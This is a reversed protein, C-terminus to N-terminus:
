SATVCAGDLGQAGIVTGIMSDVAEFASRPASEANLIQIIRHDCDTEYRSKYSTWIM